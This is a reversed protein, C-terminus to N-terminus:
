GGAETLMRQALEYAAMRLEAVATMEWYHGRILPGLAYLGDCVQGAADLVRFQPDCRLGLGLPEASILGSDRLQALLPDTSRCIATDLGTARILADTAILEVSDAGRRRLSLELRQGRRQVGLLRGAEIQLQGRRQWDELLALSDQPIRHRHVDWYSRLHRLFRGREAEPLAAWLAPLYPRLADIVGRWDEVEVCAQRLASAFPRLRAHLLAATLREPLPGAGRHPVAHARPLLGHRSLARVRGRHGRAHLSLLLDVCTLGTGLILVEAEPDISDLTKAAWPDEFCASDDWARASGNPSGLALVVRDAAFCRGDECELRFGEGSRHVARVRQPLCDFEFPAGARAAQLRHGLYEGYRARAVFGERAEGELDLWDAFESPAQPCLGMQSARVNLRHRPDPDAYARGRGFDDASGFLGLWSLPAARTSLQSALAVGSFGAGVIALRRHTSSRGQGSV